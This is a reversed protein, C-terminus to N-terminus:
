AGKETLQEYLDCLDSHVKKLDKLNFTDCARNFRTDLQKDISHLDVKSLEEIGNLIVLCLCRTIKVKDHNTRKAKM